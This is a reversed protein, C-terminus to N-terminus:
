GGGDVVKVVKVMKLKVVMVVNFSTSLRSVPSVFVFVSVPCVFVKLLQMIRANGKKRGHYQVHSHFKQYAPHSKNGFIKTNDSAKHACAINGM